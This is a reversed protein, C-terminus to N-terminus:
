VLVAMVVTTKPVMLAAPVVVAVALIQPELQAPRGVASIREVLGVVALVVQPTEVVMMQVVVAAALMLYLHDRLQILLVMVEQVVMRIGVQLCVEMM